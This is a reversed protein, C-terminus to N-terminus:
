GTGNYWQYLISVMPYNNQCVHLKGHYSDMRYLQILYVHM